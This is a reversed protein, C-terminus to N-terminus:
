LFDVAYEDLDHEICKLEESTVGLRRAIKKFTDMGCLRAIEFIEEKSLFEVFVFSFDVSLSRDTYCCEQMKARKTTGGM